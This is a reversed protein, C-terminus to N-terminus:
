KKIQIFPSLWTERGVPLLPQMAKLSDNSLPASSSNNRKPLLERLSNFDKKYLIGIGQTQVPSGGSFYLYKENLHNYAKLRFNGSRNLLMELDVESIFTNQLIMNDRYGFNGNIILRNNLLKSSLRLEVETDTNATGTAGTRINTGFQWRSDIQNLIRSLNSSLTASALYAFNNNESANEEPTYFRSLLLLYVIQRNMMDETNILNKVQRQIENDASPLALDFAIAPYRVPGTINLLCHVPIHTMGSTQALSQNLDSLNATVYYIAKLNLDASYPDGQFTISSGDEISFRKEMIKQFTFNYSGQQITYNGYIEPSSIMDWKFQIDGEGNSKVIDGGIPDMVLELTANPTARIHFNMNVKMASPKSQQITPLHSHEEASTNISDQHQKYTIFSYSNAIENMFNLRLSSHAETQLRMDLHVEQEDGYITGNGSAFVRGYMTPNQKESANFVLLNQSDIAIHYTIDNFFDHHIKGSCIATNGAQDKFLIDNFYILDKKLHISDTFTYQTNLMDVGLTGNEIYAQGEVTVDSLNGFLRVQGSGTGGVHHFLTGIYGKLFGINIHKADFLIDIANGIPDIFGEAITSNGQPSLIEGKLLVKNTEKELESYISLQGLPQSHFAFNDVFLNCTYYPKGQTTAAVVDGSAVGGFKLADIRLMEFLYELNIKDLKINLKKDPDINSFDGNIQLGQNQSQNEISFERVSITHQAVDIQSKKISWISDNLTISDPMIHIRYHLSNTNDRHFLTTTSLTGEFKEPRISQFSLASSLTDNHAFSSIQLNSRIGQTSYIAVSLTGKLPQLHNNVQLKGDYISQGGVKIHPFSGEIEIQQSQVDYNGKLFSAKYNIFPLQLVSSIHETNSIRFLFQIHESSSLSAPSSHHQSPTNPIISPLYQQLLTKINSILSKTTYIGTIEGNAIDSDLLIQRTHSTSDTNATIHIRRLFTSNDPKSLSISDIRISGTLNDPHNGEVNLHLSLSATLPSEQNYINLKSLQLNDTKAYAKISPIKDSLDVQAELHLPANEDNINITTGFQKDRLNNTFSINRYTYNRYQIYPINSTSLINLAQNHRKSMQVSVEIGVSGLDKIGSAKGLDFAETQINADINFAGQSLMSLTNNIQINGLDTHAIGNTHVTNTNASIDGHFLVEGINNIWEPVQIRRSTFNNSIGEIGAKNIFFTKVKSNISLSDKDLLNSLSSSAELRMKNGYRLSFHQIQLHKVGGQLYADVSLTDHFYQLDSALFRFDKPSIFSAKINTQFDSLLSFPTKARPPAQLEIQSFNVQSHPLHLSLDKISAKQSNATIRTVLNLIELGSKEKLSLQKVIINLSDKQISKLSLKARINDIHIHNPDIKDSVPPRNKIDYLLTGNKLNLLDVRINFSSNTNGKNQNLAEILPQINLPSNISDKSLSVKFDSLEVSTIVIEKRLLTWLDIGATLKQAVLATDSKPTYVSVESLRVNTFPTIQLQGITVRSGLKTQLESQITQRIFDQVSPLNLLTYTAGM